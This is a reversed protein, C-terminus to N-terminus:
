PNGAQLDSIKRIVEESLQRYGEKEVPYNHFDRLPPAFRVVIRTRKLLLDWLRRHTGAISTPVV